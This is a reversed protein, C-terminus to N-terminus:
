NVIWWNFRIDKGYVSEISVKFYASPSSDSVYLQKDGTKDLPTVFIKSNDTVAATPITVSVSNELLTGTGISASESDSEDINIKKVTIEGTVIVNGETDITVKGALIDVGGFGQPQLKLDGGVVNIEGDIGNITLLGSNIAGTVGLNNVTARDLVMLTGSVTATEVDLSETGVGLVETNNISALLASLSATQDLTQSM